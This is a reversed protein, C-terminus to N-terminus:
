PVTSCISTIPRLAAAAEFYLEAIRHAAEARRNPDGHKIIEDLGPILTTAVTM